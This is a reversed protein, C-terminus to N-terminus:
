NSGQAAKQVAFTRAQYIFTTGTSGAPPLAVPNTQILGTGPSISVWINSLDEMNDMENPLDFNWDRRVKDLRGVMLYVPASPRVGLTYNNTNALGFHVRDLGGNPGFMITVPVQRTANGTTTGQEFQRGTAGVGSANLDIVVGEPLQLPPVASKVPARFVQYPASNILMPWTNTETTLWCMANGSGDVIQTIFGAANVNAATTNIVYVHGQYNLRLRDGPRVLVQWQDMVPGPIGAFTIENRNTSTNFSVSMRSQLFDGAYPPPVEVINMTMASNIGQVSSVNIRQLQVGVPRGNAIARDRAGAIYANVGRAGERMQRSELPSVVLPAAIALLMLLITIVVLLEVLTVGSRLRRLEFRTQATANM